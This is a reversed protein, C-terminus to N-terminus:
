RTTALSRKKTVGPKRLMIEQPLSIRRNEAGANIDAGRVDDGFDLGTAQELYEVTTLFDEVKELEAADAFEERGDLAEPWVDIVPKQNALMALCRLRGREQWIVIKWFESPVQIDRFKRDNQRFVPGTFCSARTDDAVTNRLVYNEIARWLKGGGSNPETRSARGMNFFGVQPSCNTWHFTDADALLAQRNSGWAPDMRRVLHGRQFMRLTRAMSRTDLFGPVIQKEYVDKGAYNEPDLRADDYWTESGEAGESAAWLSELRPDDARLPTVDGTDRDVHKSTSGDINCATFFALRRKANMVISFHHYKLEFPDDGPGAEKNPAAIAEQAPTLRPLNITHNRIFRPKYGSRDAYQTSPRM